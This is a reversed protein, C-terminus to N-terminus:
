MKFSSMTDRLDHSVRGEIDKRTFFIYSYTMREDFESYDLHVPKTFIKEYMECSSTITEIVSEVLHFQDANMDKSSFPLEIALSTSTYYDYRMYYHIFAYIAVRFSKFLDNSDSEGVFQINNLVCFRINEAYDIDKIKSIYKEHQYCLADVSASSAGIQFCNDSNFAMLDLYSKIVEEQDFYENTGVHYPFTQSTFTAILNSPVFFQITKAEFFPDEDVFREEFLHSDNESFMFDLVDDFLENDITASMFKDPVHEMSMAKMEELDSYKHLEIDSFLFKLDFSPLNKNLVSLAANYSKYGIDRAYLNLKQSSKINKEKYKKHAIYKFCKTTLTCM